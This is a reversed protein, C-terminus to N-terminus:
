ALPHHSDFALRQQINMVANEAKFDMKTLSINLDPPQSLEFAPLTSQFIITIITKDRTPVTIIGQERLHLLGKIAPPCHAIWTDNERTLLVQDDAVLLAGQGILQYALESKGSGPPGVLLIGKGQWELSTGHQNM